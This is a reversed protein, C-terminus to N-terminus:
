IKEGPKVEENSNEEEKIRLRMDERWGDGRIRM